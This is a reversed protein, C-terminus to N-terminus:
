VSKAEAIAARAADMEAHPRGPWVSGWPQADVRMALAELAALLAPAAKSVAERRKYEADAADILADTLACAEIDARAAAARAPTPTMAQPTCHDPLEGGATDPLPAAHIAEFQLDRLRMGTFRKVLSM